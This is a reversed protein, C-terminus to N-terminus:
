SDAAAGFEQQMRRREQQANAFRTALETRDLGLVKFARERQALQDDHIHNADLQREIWRMVGYRAVSDVEGPRPGYALRNLAHIASDRPSLVQATLRNPPQATLFVSAFCGLRVALGGLRGVPGVIKAM